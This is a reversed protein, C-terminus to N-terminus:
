AVKELSMSGNTMAGSEELRYHWPQCEAAVQRFVRSPDGGSHAVATKLWGSHAPCVKAALKHFGTWKGDTRQEKRWSLVDFFRVAPQPSDVSDLTMELNTEGMEFLTYVQYRLWTLICAVRCLVSVAPTCQEQCLLTMPFRMETNPGHLVLVIEEAWFVKAVVGLFRRSLRLEPYQPLESFKFVMGQCTYAARDQGKAIWQLLTGCPGSLCWTSDSHRRCLGCCPGPFVLNSSGVMYLQRAEVRRAVLSPPTKVQKQWVRKVLVSVPSPDQTKDKAAFATCLRVRRQWSSALVEGGEASETSSDSSATKLARKDKPLVKNLPKTRTKETGKGESDPSKPRQQGM